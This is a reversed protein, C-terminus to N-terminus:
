IKIGQNFGVGFATGLSVVVCAPEELFNFAMASTDHYLKVTIDLQEHKKFYRNLSEEYCNNFFGLRGYGYISKRIYGNNVYNSIAILIEKGTFDVLSLSDLIISKIYGDLKSAAEDDNLGDYLYRAELKDLIMDLNNDIYRRKISTQGFDFILTEGKCVKSLGKTSFDESSKIFLIEKSFDSFHKNLIDTFNSSLLGGVVYVRNISKLYDFHKKCLHNNEDIVQQTPFLWAQFIKKLSDAYKEALDRIVTDKIIDKAFAVLSGQIDQSENRTIENYDMAIKKPSFMENASKGDVVFRNLSVIPQLYGEDIFPNNVIQNVLKKSDKEIKVGGEQIV